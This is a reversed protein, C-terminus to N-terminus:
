DELLGRTRALAAAETRGAAGLKALINSVHVSVTKTSIFLQRGIEGNSRGQAVLALVEAERATLAEPEGGEERVAAARRGSPGLGRIELLLPGAGLALAAKRASQLEQTAEETEGAARLVAALRTRSRAAEFVHGMREFAALAARWQGVLQVEDPSGIGAVWHLRGLEAESRALWAQGEIGHRGHERGVEAVARAVEALAEGRRVLDAREPGSASVAAKAYQGLLLGSFRIRAQFTSRDWMESVTAVADDHVDQAAELDGSDGYLDIAAAASLLAVLADHRWQEHREPYGDLSELEGRGAAVQSAIAELAARALPPAAETTVDCIHLVDNWDGATYAVIASMMRADVGYPAWTRGNRRALADAREFTERAPGLEAQDYMLNALSFTSRIEAAVEGAQHAAAITEELAQRSGEPDGARRELYSRTVAADAVVDALGLEVGMATATDLWRIAEENRYRELNALAHTNALRARLPSVEGAPLLALAETTLDLANIGTDALMATAATAHLLRARQVPTAWAPLDALHRQVLAFARHVRGAASAAESAKIALEIPDIGGEASDRLTAPDMALIELAAEYHAAAEDPGGVSMAEDGAEISARLAVPLDHAARAHGALEAATAHAGPASLAAVYATHWRVREGPLLDGYVAEALLAHRFTYGDRVPLLINADVAPRLAEDFSPDAVVAALLTHSVRRGAVSAARVVQRTSEDLRDLRVLLLDALDTPLMRGGDGAAAVLEETFFANGEARAVIRRVEMEPLPGPHLTRVLTRVDKSTLPRLTLRSIQPLRAWEAATARLPHRRHLDDTRYSAVIAVPGAPPRTFLMTLLDRTSQDAWHIDEVIVLLPQQEALLGLASHVADILDGRGLREGSDATSATSASGAPGRESTDIMRHGPMLRALAPEAAILADAVAPEDRAITGFLESFPLYPLASDGFDLCHGVAVRWGADVARTRLESLLRTKGLGADGGLLVAATQPREPRSAALLGIERSLSDLEETRGILPSRPETEPPVCGDDLAHGVVPFATEASTL